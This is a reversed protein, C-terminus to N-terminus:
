FFVPCKFEILSNQLLNENKKERHDQIWKCKTGRTTPLYMIEIIFSVDIMFISLTIM